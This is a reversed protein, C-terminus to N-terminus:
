EAHATPENRSRARLRRVSQVLVYPWLLMAGPLILIRAGLSAGTATSEVRPLILMFLFAILAGVAVYGQLGRLIMEALHIRAPM